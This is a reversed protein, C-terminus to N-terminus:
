RYYQSFVYFLIILLALEGLVVGYLRSWSKLIPPSGPDEGNFETNRFDSM